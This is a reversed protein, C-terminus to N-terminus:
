IRIHFNERPFILGQSDGGGGHDGEDDKGYVDYDEKCDEGKEAVTDTM